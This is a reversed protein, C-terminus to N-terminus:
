SDDDSAAAAELAGVTTRINLTPGKLDLMLTSQALGDAPSGLLPRLNGERADVFTQFNFATASIGGNASLFNNNGRVLNSAVEINIPSTGQDLLVAQEEVNGWILSNKMTINLPIDLVNGDDLAIFNSATFSPGSPFFDFSFNLVSLHNFRYSGGAILALPQMICNTILLNEAEFNSSFALIGALSMNEITTNKLILDPDQSESPAGMRIGYEANRINTYELQNGTTGELLYIGGWQGPSSNFPKDRRVNSFSVLAKEAGKAILSGSVFVAANQFAYIRTGAELHLSVGEEILISSQLIYPRLSDWVQPSTLRGGSILRVNESWAQLLATSEIVGEHIAAIREEFAFVEDRENEPIKAQLLMLLSDGARIRRNTFERIPIGNIQIDFLDYAENELQFQDLVRDESTANYLKLRKTVSLFGSFLTDFSVTDESFVFGSGLNQIRGLDDDPNCASILISMFLAYLLVAWHRLKDSRKM